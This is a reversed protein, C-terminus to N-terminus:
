PAYRSSKRNGNSSRGYLDGLGLASPLSAIEGTNPTVSIARDDWLEGMREDKKNTIPLVRGFNDLSFRDIAKRDFDGSGKRATFIRVEHGMRLAERVREVMKPIAPGVEHPNFSRLKKALTGDLDVGIWM